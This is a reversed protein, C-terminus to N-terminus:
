KSTVSKSPRGPPKKFQPFGEVIWKKVTRPTYSGACGFIKVDKDNVLEDISINPNYHIKMAVIALTKIRDEQKPQLDRTTQTEIKEKPNSFLHYRFIDESFKDLEKEVCWDYFENPNVWYEELKDDWKLDLQGLRFGGIAAEIIYKADNIGDFAINVLSKLVLLDAKLVLHDLLEKEEIRM